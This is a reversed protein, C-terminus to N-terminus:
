SVSVEIGTLAPACAVVSLGAAQFAAVLGARAQQDRAFAVGLDGGGAGTPKYVAGAERAVAGAHEHAVSVIGVGSARTLDTLGKAFTAVADYFDQEALRTVAAIGAASAQALAMMLAEYRAASRQAYSQLAAIMAPTSTAEGVQVVVPDLWTPYPLPRVTPVGSGQRMFVALGGYVSAAVDIGSGAGCQAAAHAALAPVFLTQEGGILPGEGWLARVCALSAVTVAASSGFGLKHGHADVFAQSDIRLSVGSPVVGAKLEAAAARVAAAVFGLKSRASADLQADFQPEGHVDLTFCAGVLGLDPADVVLQTDTRAVALVHARREVALVLAPAGKLVAYEGLLIVKGPATAAVTV